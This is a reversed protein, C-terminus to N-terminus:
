FRQFGVSTNGCSRMDRREIQARLMGIDAAPRDLSGCAALLTQHDPESPPV